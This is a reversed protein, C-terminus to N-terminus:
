SAGVNVELSKNRKNVWLLILNQLFSLTWFVRTQLYCYNKLCPDTLWFFIGVKLSYFFISFYRFCRFFMSFSLFFMSFILNCRYFRYLDLIDFVNFFMFFFMFDWWVELPKNNDVGHIELTRVVTRDMGM